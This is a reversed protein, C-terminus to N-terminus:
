FDTTMTTLSGSEQMGNLEVTAPNSPPGASCPPHLVRKNPIPQYSPRPPLIRARIKALTTVVIPSCTVKPNNWLGVPTTGAAPSVTVGPNSSVSAAVQAAASISSITLLCVIVSFWLTVVLLRKSGIASDLTGGRLIRDM